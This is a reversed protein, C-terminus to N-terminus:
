QSRVPHCYNNERALRLVHRPCPPDILLHPPREGRALVMILEAARRRCQLVADPDNQHDWANMCVAPNSLLPHNVSVWPLLGDNFTVAGPRGRRMAIALADLDILGPSSLNVLLSNRRPLAFRSANIMGRTVPSLPVHLSVVDAIGMLEHLETRRCRENDFREAAVFPDHAWVEMRRERALRAVRIGVQGFGVVGLRWPRKFRPRAAPYREILQEIAKITHLAWADSAADPISAVYIGARRAADLDVRAAHVGAGPGYHILMLCREARGIMEADIPRTRTLVIDAQSVRDTPAGSDGSDPGIVRPDLGGARLVQEEVDSPGPPADLILLTPNGLCAVTESHSRSKPRV